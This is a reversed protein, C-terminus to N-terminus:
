GKNAATIIDAMKPVYDDGHGLGVALGFSNRVAAGVPNSVGLSTALNQLYSVDKFGNRIAFKHANPDRDLFWKSFTQYFGCDMRGGRIVSDFTQPAIGTKDALMLTEAYLAAYGMSLFNNLLKMTHGTGTPGTHVIRGAFAELVPRIHAFIEDSGGAMVDLTGAEADAPTRGLPADVLTIGKEALSAALSITVAPDSTSCDIVVLPRGSAAIGSPGELVAQVQPSGTVCLVVIDVNEALERPTNAEKAGLAMLSEVPGRNRHAMVSVPWSIACNGARARSRVGAALRARWVGAHVNGDATTDFNWSSQAPNGEIRRGEAPHSVAPAGLAARPFLVFSGKEEAMTM